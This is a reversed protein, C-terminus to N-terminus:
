QRFGEWAPNSVAAGDAGVTMWALGRETIDCPGSASIIAHKALVEAWAATSAIVSAGLIGGDVGCGTSPDIIHVPVSGDARRRAGVASTAVAGNELTVTDITCSFDSPSAIAVQWGGEPAEGACRLDGGMNVCVGVAGSAVADASIIDAALGKGIGGADLLVGNHMRVAFDDIIEVDGLDHSHSGPPLDTRGNGHRSAADGLAVLADVHTPNFTGSTESHATKMVEILHVTLPDVFTVRGGSNNLRTIDSGPLFRSWLQELHTARELGRRALGFGNAGTVTVACTVGMTRQELRTATVTPM